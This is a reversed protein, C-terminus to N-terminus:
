WVGVLIVIIFALSLETPFTTLFQTMQVSSNIIDLLM